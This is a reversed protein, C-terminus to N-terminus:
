APRRPPLLLSPLLLLWGEGDAMRGSKASTHLNAAPLSRPRRGAGRSASRCGSGDPAGGCPAGPARRSRAASIMEKEVNKVAADVTDSPATQLSMSMVKLAQPQQIVWDVGEVLYSQDGRGFDGLVKVPVLMAEPAVGVYLGAATGACHTGHGNHDETGTESGSVDTGPIVRPKLWPHEADIGTDLVFITVGAGKNRPDYEGTMEGDLWLMRSLADDWLSLSLVMGRKLAEGMARLGGKKTFDDPDNFAAKQAACFDDTISNGAGPGLITAESNEIVAGDQVYFRRVESLDGTDTGDHTLFQTVITAPKSSDIKYDSGHGYFSTNGM